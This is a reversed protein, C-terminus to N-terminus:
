IYIFFIKYTQWRHGAVSTTEIWLLSGTYTQCPAHMESVRWCSVFGYAVKVAGAELCTGAPPYVSWHSTEVGITMSWRHEGTWPFPLLFCANELRRHNTATDETKPSVPVRPTASGTKLQPTATRCPAAGAEHVGVRRDRHDAPRQHSCVHERGPYSIGQLCM